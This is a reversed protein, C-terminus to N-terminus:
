LHKRAGLLSFVVQISLSNSYDRCPGRGRRYSKSRNERGKAFLPSNKDGPFAGPRRGFRLTGRRPSQSRTTCGSAEFLANRFRRPIDGRTSATARHFRDSWRVRHMPRHCRDWRRRRRCTWIDLRCGACAALYDLEMQQFSSDIGTLHRPWQIKIATSPRV